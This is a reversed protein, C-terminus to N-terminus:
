RGLSSRLESVPSNEGMEESLRDRSPLHRYRILLNGANEEISVSLIYLRRGRDEGYCGPKFGCIYM